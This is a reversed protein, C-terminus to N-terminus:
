LLKMGMDHEFGAFTSNMLTYVSNLLSTTLFRDIRSIKDPYNVLSHLVYQVHEFTIKRYAAKATEESVRKGESIVTREGCLVDVMFDKIEEVMKVVSDDEYSMLCDYDIQKKVAEEVANRDIGDILGDAGPSFNQFDTRPLNISQDYTHSMDTNNIDINNSDSNRVELLRNKPNASTQNESKKIDIKGVEQIGNELSRSTPVLNTNQEGKVIFNKVYLISPLGLGRRKKKVLGIGSQNDLEKLLNLAKEHGVDLSEEIEEVDLKRYEEYKALDSPMELKRRHNDLTYGDSKVDFYWFDKKKESSKVKKNVKTAYIIDTKVGTYPLFVGQPLSIISQLQCHELLYERTKALDKRFLFGEPVVLAMRGNEAASNIAKMCHQVCISDGNTNPLDYLNGHKTKQSYPMNALVIDFGRHHLVGNEMYTETGDIPNALSDLMKINSHGDGALIMNMKTIRATNTIENGYVTSERLTKMNAETRAMNNHIYRFSEILFGGTGCFPDYIKEGIQPNVLRVMTKVIHRPTFYEGLDNKTSTSAKLFYEFADGKVDSDVDTLMLPDLKDMIEKLISADRIQLPTFIDTDYLANLKDYVTKNIYEIRTSIPIQKISDWSCAVDFKTPIGSERKIQESESILKLFLINAFEGFREIGARLGEGRLM